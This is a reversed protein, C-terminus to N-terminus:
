NNLNSWLTRTANANERGITRNLKNNLAQKNFNKSNIKSNPQQTKYQQLQKDRLKMYAERSIMNPNKASENRKPAFTTPRVKQDAMAPVAFIVLILATLVIKM